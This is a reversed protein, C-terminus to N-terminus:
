TSPTLYKQNKVKSKQNEQQLTLEGKLRYLEAEDSRERTRDVVALAEALVGLGEEAQGVRGYAEALLVLFHPRLLESGTARYAAIGQRIQAVGEEGRGQEALAWGQQTTGLALWETFGQETSLTMAAEARRAGVSFRVALYEAVEEESLFDLALEQCSGHVQLEQKVAQLPHERVLVDVPRYTGLVVLRAPERRRAMYALWDLTSVDAWHLDELWLVLPREATLREVAEALERLMRERTTGQTQRQLAELETTTLLAPLQMLWSPAQQGLLEILRQGGPERGLRGL